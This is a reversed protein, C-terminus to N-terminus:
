APLRVERGAAIRDAAWSTLVWVIADNGTDTPRRRGSDEVYGDKMLSNRAASVSQHRGGHSTRALIREMEYDTLGDESDFIMWFLRHKNRGAKLAARAAAQHSTSPAHLAVAASPDGLTSPRGTVYYRGPQGVRSPAPTVPVPPFRRTTTPDDERGRGVPEGAPDPSSPALSAADAPATAGFLDLAWEEEAPPHTPGTLPSAPLEPEVVAIEEVGASDAHPAAPHATGDGGEFVAVVGRHGSSAWVLPVEGGGSLHEDLALFLAAM